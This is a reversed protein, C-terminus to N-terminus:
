TAPARPRRARAPRGSGRRPAGILVSVCSMSTGGGGPAGAFGCGWLPPAQCTVQCPTRVTAARSSRWRTREVRHITARMTQNTTTPPSVSSLEPAILASDLLAPAEAERPGSSNEETSISTSPRPSSTVGVRLEVEILPSRLAPVRAVRWTVSSLGASITSPLSSAAHAAENAKRTALRGNRSSPTSIPPVGASDKTTATSSVATSSAHTHAMPTPQDANTARVAPEVRSVNRVIAAVVSMAGSTKTSVSPVPMTDWVSSTRVHDLTGVSSMVDPAGSHAHTVRVVVWNCVSRVQHSSAAFGSTM